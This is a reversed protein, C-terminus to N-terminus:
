LEDIDFVFSDEAMRNTILPIIDQSIRDSTPHFFGTDQLAKRVNIRPGLYDLLVKSAGPKRGRRTPGGTQNGVLSTLRHQHSPYLTAQTISKKELTEYEVIYIRDALYFLAGEYKNLGMSKGTNPDRLVEINKWYYRGSVEHISALSRTVLGKNGFSFFYRYYFGVYRDLKQSERYIGELKELPKELAASHEPVRRLLIMQEFKPHELLIEAETVGFFDCIKRMNARSPRTQGALYKNFQQRNMGLRRCAEAISPRYSCLLGLNIAFDNKMRGNACLLWYLTLDRIRAFYGFCKRYSM